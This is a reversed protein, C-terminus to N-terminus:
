LFLVIKMLCFFICIDLIQLFLKRGLHCLSVYYLNGLLYHNKKMRFNSFFILIKAALTYYWSYVFPTMQSNKIGIM